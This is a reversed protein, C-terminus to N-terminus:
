GDLVLESFWPPRVSASMMRRVDAPRKVWEYRLRYGSPLEKWYTARWPM